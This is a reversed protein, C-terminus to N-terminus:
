SEGFSSTFTSEEEVEVEVWEVEVALCEAEEPPVEELLEEEVPCHTDLYVLFLLFLLAFLWFRGIEHNLLYKLSFEYRAGRPAGGPAPM